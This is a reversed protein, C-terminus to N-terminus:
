HVPSLSDPDPLPFVSVGEDLLAEFEAASAQGRISREPAEGRHIRRAEAPFQPGLDEAKAKLALVLERLTSPPNEPAAAPKAPTPETGRLNLRPASLRRVVESHGCHPCSVLGRQRQSEFDERSGFWGEFPHGLACQLEAVWM